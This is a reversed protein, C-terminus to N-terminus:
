CAFGYGSNKLDLRADPDVILLKEAKTDSGQIQATIKLNGKAEGTVIGVTKTGGILTIQQGPVDPEDDALDLAFSGEGELAVTVKSIEDDM